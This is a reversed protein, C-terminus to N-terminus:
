ARVSASDGTQDPAALENFRRAASLNWGILRDLLPSRVRGYVERGASAPTDSRTATPLLRNVLGALDASLGPFLGHFRAALNAPITLTREAEGRKVAQVIQRAAREGDISVFPLSDALAFLTFEQEQRGKFRAQMMSGFRMLGPVITTVTIGDRALEARLGESLAVAAFKACSYPLLHPVSLKGGISTINVIRGGRREIMRPLVALIPYLTGWFMVRMAEEFDALAMTRVPGVMIVGANNVLVDIRGYHATVDAVLREVQVQESVDCRVTLVEGDPGLLERARELEAQDRACMAVRCGERLLERALLLGLGRSGGTILAVQGRLDAATARGLAERGILGAVIAGVAVRERSL